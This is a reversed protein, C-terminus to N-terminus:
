SALDRSRQAAAAITRRILQSLGTSEDMLVGLGAATTGGPSTVNVRLQEASEVSQFALEGAGCVTACALKMALDPPLGEAEAATALAEIMHFVYAPGSGSVGTVADMQAENELWVTEGLTALLAEALERQAPSTAENAFLATVGRGVASPTNPMARVIPTDAGLAQEFYGITKGAAISLFVTDPGALGRVSPLAADMMQPKVALTVVAAAGDTMPASLDVRTEEAVSVLHDSPNPESIRIRSPPAGAGLWGELMAQGMKGCGLLCLTGDGLLAGLERGEGM